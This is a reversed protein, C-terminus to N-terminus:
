LEISFEKERNWYRIQKATVKIMVIGATALGKSFWATLAEQWHKKMLSKERIIEGTGAIHIFLMENGSFSLSVLPSAELQTIKPTGDYAFFWADGDFEVDGNSSMPRSEFRGENETTMMCFDIAKMKSAIENLLANNM